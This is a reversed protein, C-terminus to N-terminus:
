QWRQLPKPPLRPARGSAAGGNGNGRPRGGSPHGLSSARPPTNDAMSLVGELDGSVTAQSVGLVNGIAAQTM